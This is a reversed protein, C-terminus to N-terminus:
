DGKPCDYYYSFGNGTEIRNLRVGFVTGIIGSRYIREPTDSMVIRGDQMVLVHDSYAMALTLDHLVAVIGKGSQSLKQLIDMLRFRNAIDLYATPEDMLIYDAAQALAMAIFANQRMGGSLASIPTEALHAIHLRQMASLAIARDEPGYRRPYRLHAFRGHLVMQGVTMDPVAQSQTLYAIKQALAKPGMVATSQDDIRMQGDSLPLIGIITKLLTTKGCGNSGIISTLQGKEFAADVDFLVSKKGYGASVNKLEIM